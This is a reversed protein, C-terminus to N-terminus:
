TTHLTSASPLTLSNTSPLLKPAVLVRTVTMEAALSTPSVIVAASAVLIPGPEPLKLLVVAM